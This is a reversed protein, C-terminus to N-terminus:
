RDISHRTKELRASVNVRGDRRGDRRGRIWERDVRPPLRAVVLFMPVVLAGWRGDDAKM